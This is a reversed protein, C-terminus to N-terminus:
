RTARAHNLSSLSVLRTRHFAAHAALVLLRASCFPRRQPNRFLVITVDTDVFSGNISYFVLTFHYDRAGHNCETTRRVCTWTSSLIAPTWGTMSTLRDCTSIPRTPVHYSPLVHGHFRGYSGKGVPDDPFSPLMRGSRAARSRPRRSNSRPHPSSELGVNKAQFLGASCRYFRAGSAVTIDGYREM